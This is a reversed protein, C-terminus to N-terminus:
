GAATAASIKSICAQKLEAYHSLYSEFQSGHQMYHWRGWAHAAADVVHITLAAVARLEELPTGEAIETGDLMNAACFAKHRGNIALERREPRVEAEEDNEGMAWDIQPKLQIGGPYASTGSIVDELLGVNNPTQPGERSVNEKRRINRSGCGPKNTPKGDRSVSFQRCITPTTERPVKWSDSCDLCEWHANRIEFIIEPKAFAIRVKKDASEVAARYEESRVENLGATLPELAKKYREQTRAREERLEEVRVLESLQSLREKLYGVFAAFYDDEVLGERSTTDRLRPNFEKSIHISGELYHPKLRFRSGGVYRARYIQLWDGEPGPEGFPRVRCGDRFLRIGMNWDVEPDGGRGRESTRLGRGFYRLKGRIPGFNPPDITRTEIRLGNDDCLTVKEESASSIEFEVSHTESGRLPNELLGNLEKWPTVFRIKFDTATTEPDILTALQNRLKEVKSKKWDIRLGRIEITTGHTPEYAEPRKIRVPFEYDGLEREGKLEGCNFMVQYVSEQGDVRTRLVLQSGLKETAFRGVGKQGLRKRLFVRSRDETVKNETALFAWKAHLDDRSMGTGDDQIVLRQEANVNRLELLVSTADADYSNKVLEIVATIEDKLQESGLRTLMAAGTRFRLSDSTELQTALSAEM